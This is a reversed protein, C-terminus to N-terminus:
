TAPSTTARCRSPISRRWPAPVSRQASSYFNSGSLVLTNPGLKVLGIYPNDLNDSLTFGATANTTDIGIVSGALINAHTLLTAIDDNGSSNWQGPGGVNVALTAGPYVTM